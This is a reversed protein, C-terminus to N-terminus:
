NNAEGTVNQKGRYLIGFTYLETTSAGGDDDLELGYVYLTDRKVTGAAFNNWVLAAMANAAGPMTVATLTTLTTMPTPLAAAFTIADLGLKYIPTDADTSDSAVVIAVQILENHDLEPFPYGIGVLTDGHAISQWAVIGTTSHETFVSAATTASTQVGSNWYIGDPFLAQISKYYTVTPRQMGKNRIGM